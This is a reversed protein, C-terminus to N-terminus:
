RYKYYYRARNKKWNFINWVVGTYFIVKGFIM